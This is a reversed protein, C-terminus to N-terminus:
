VFKEEQFHYKKSLYAYTQQDILYAYFIIHMM